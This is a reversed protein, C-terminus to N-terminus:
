KKKKKAKKKAKKKTPNLQEDTVGVQGEPVVADPDAMVTGDPSEAYAGASGDPVHGEEPRKSKNAIKNREEFAEEQDKLNEEAEATQHDIIEQQLAERQAAVKQGITPAKSAAKEIKEECYALLEEFRTCMRRMEEANNMVEIQPSIRAAIKNLRRKIEM